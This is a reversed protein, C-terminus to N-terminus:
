WGSAGSAPPRVVPLFGVEVVVGEEFVFPLAHAGEVLMTGLAVDEGESLILFQEVVFVHGGGRGPGLGGADAGADRGLRRVEAPATPAAGAAAVPGAAVAVQGDGDGGPDADQDHGQQAKECPGFHAAAKEM